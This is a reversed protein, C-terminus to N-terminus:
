YPVEYGNKVLILNMYIVIVLNLSNKQAQNLNLTSLFDILYLGANVGLSPDM